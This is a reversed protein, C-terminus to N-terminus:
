RLVKVSKVSGDSKKDMRIYVGKEPVANLKQGQLNYYISSITTADSKEITNVAASDVLDQWYEYPAYGGWGDCMNHYAGADLGELPCVGEPVIDGYYFIDSTKTGTYPASAFPFEGGSPTAIADWWEAGPNDASWGFPFLNANYYVVYGPELCGYETYDENPLFYDDAYRTTHQQFFNVVMGYVNDKIHFLRGDINGKGTTGEPAGTVYLDYAMGRGLVEPNRSPQAMAEAFGTGTVDVAFIFTEDIEWDNSDAFSNTEPNWKVIYNDNEDKPNGFAFVTAPALLMAALGVLFTSNKM